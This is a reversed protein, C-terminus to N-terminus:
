RTHAVTAGPPRDEGAGGSPGVWRALLDQVEAVLPRHAPVPTIRRGSSLLRALIGPALLWASADDPQRGEPVGGSPPTGRPPPRLRNVVAPEALRLLAIAEAADTCQDSMDTQHSSRGGCAQRTTIGAM